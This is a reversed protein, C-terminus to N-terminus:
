AAPPGRALARWAPALRASRLAEVAPQPATGAAEVAPPAPNLGDAQALQDLLRCEADGVEHDDFAHSEHAHHAHHAHHAQHALGHVTRHWQGLSQALLLAALLALWVPVSLRRSVRM